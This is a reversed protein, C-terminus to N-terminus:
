SSLMSPGMMWVAMATGRQERPILDAITGGGLVMPAGGFCGMLFRFTIFMGMNTAVAAAITFVIFFINCSHYLPLRGYMESLPAIILPGFAFGLVYVSVMFGQLLDNTSNFERMIEPVGPAFESSALPTLFTIASVLTVMGWKKSAKWNLPNQPDDPGDFDVVNPDEEPEEGPEDISSASGPRDDGKELDKDAAAANHNKEDRSISPRASAQHGPEPIWGLNSSIDADHGEAAALDIIESRTPHRYLKPAAM